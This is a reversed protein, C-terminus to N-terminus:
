TQPLFRYAPGSPALIDAIATYPIKFEPIGVYGPTYQYAQFYIVLEERTMYFGENRSIQQFENILPLEADAIQQKIIASLRQIYESNPRFLDALQYARGTLLNYTVSTRMTLGHAAKDQYSYVDYWLSFVGQDNLTISQETWIGVNAKGYNQQRLLRRVRMVLDRNIRNAARSSRLGYLRPIPIARVNSYSAM